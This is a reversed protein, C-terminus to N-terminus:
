DLTKPSINVDEKIVPHSCKSPFTTLLVNQLLLLYTWITSAGNFDTGDSNSAGARTRGVQHSHSSITFLLFTLLKTKIGLDIATQELHTLTNDNLFESFQSFSQAMKSQVLATRLYQMQSACLSAVIQKVNFSCALNWLLQEQWDTEQSAPM